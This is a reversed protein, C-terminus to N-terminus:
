SLRYKILYAPYVNQHNYVVYLPIAETVKGVVSDFKPQACNITYMYSDETVPRQPPIRLTPSPQTGFDKCYGLIVTAMILSQSGDDHEYAYGHAHLAEKTFYAGMGWKGKTYFRQDESKCINEPNTNKNGYFLMIENVHGGNKKNIRQKYFQHGEFLWINQNRTIQQIEASPLSRKFQLAVFKWEESDTRVAFVECQTRQELWFKPQLNRKTVVSPVVQDM